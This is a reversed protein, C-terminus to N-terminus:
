VAECLDSPYQFPMVGAGGRPAMSVTRLVPRGPCAMNPGLLCPLRVHARCHQWAAHVTGPGPQIPALAVHSGPAGSHSVQVNAPADAGKAPQSVHWAGTHDEVAPATARSGAGQTLVAHRRWLRSLDWCAVSPRRSPRSCTTYRRSSLRIGFPLLDLSVCRRIWIFFRSLAAYVRACPPPCSLRYRSTSILSGSKGRATANPPPSPSPARSTPGQAACTRRTSPARRTWAACRSPTSGRYSRSRTDGV